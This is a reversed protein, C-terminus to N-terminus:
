LYDSYKVKMPAWVLHYHCSLIYHHNYPHNISRAPGPSAVRAGPGPVVPAMPAPRPLSEVEVPSLKTITGLLYYKNNNGQRSGSGLRSQKSTRRRHGWGLVLVGPNRSIRRGNGMTVARKNSILQSAPTMCLRGTGRSLPSSERQGEGMADAAGIVGQWALLYIGPVREAAARM